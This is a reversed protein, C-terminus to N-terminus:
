PLSVIHVYPVFYGFLSLPVVLAWIVYKKRHWIDVNILGKLQQAFTKKELSSVNAKQIEDKEIPKFLLACLMICAMFGSICRLTYELGHTAMISKLLFPLIITFVSSGATVIGNM